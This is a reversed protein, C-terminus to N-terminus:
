NPEVKVKKEKPEPEHSTKENKRKAEKGDINKELINLYKILPVSICIQFDWLIKTNM